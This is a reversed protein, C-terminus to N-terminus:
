FDNYYGKLISKQATNPIYKELIEIMLLVDNGIQEDQTNYSIELIIKRTREAIKQSNKISQINHIKNIIKFLWAIKDYPPSHHASQFSKTLQEATQNVPALFTCRTLNLWDQFNLINVSKTLIYSVHKLFSHINGLFYEHNPNELKRPAIPQKKFHKQIALHMLEISKKLSAQKCQDLFPKINKYNDLIVSAIATCGYTYPNYKNARHATQSTLWIKNKLIEEFNDFLLAVKETFVAIGEDIYKNNSLAFLHSVEHCFDKHFQQSNRSILALAISNGFHLCFQHKSKKCLIIIRINSLTKQLHQSINKCRNYLLFCDNLDEQKLTYNSLIYTKKALYYGYLNSHLIYKLLDLYRPPIQNKYNNQNLQLKDLITQPSIKRILPDEM